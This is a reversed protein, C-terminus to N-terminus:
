KQPYAKEFFAQLAKPAFAGILFASTIYVGTEGAGEVTITLYGFGFSALLSLVNMVRMTSMKGSDDSLMTPKM